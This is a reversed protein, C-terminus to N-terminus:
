ALFLGHQLIRFKVERSKGSTVELKTRVYFFIKTLFDMDSFVKLCFRSHIVTKSLDYISTKISVLNWLNLSKSLWHNRWKWLIVGSSLISREWGPGNLDQVDQISNLSIHTIDDTWPPSCRKRYAEDWPRCGIIVKTWRIQWMHAVHSAWSRKLNAM